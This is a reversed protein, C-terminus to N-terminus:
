AFQDAVLAAKDAAVIASDLRWENVKTSAVIARKGQVVSLQDTEWPRPGNEDPDTKGLEVMVLEDNHVEWRGSETVQAAVCNKDGFCDSIRIDGAWSRSASEHLGGTLSETWQGLGMARLVTFRRKLDATLTANAPDAPAEFGQEDGALLAKAQI